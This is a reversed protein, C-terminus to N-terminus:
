NKEKICSAFGFGDADGPEDADDAWGGLLHGAKEALLSDDGDEPDACRDAHTQPHHVAVAAGLALVLVGLLMTAVILLARLRM